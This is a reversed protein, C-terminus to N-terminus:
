FGQIARAARAQWTYAQVDLQAQRALRERRPADALLSQLADLWEPLNDPPCLVANNENLVEHLVPLDSSLIARGAAMYEFMKMPSCVDATNGGSSTAISREYPMLLVDAAAQYVPVEANHIFGTLTVNSVQAEILRDQWATVDAPRGGVWLFRVGPLARALGVLLDMGRGPYLHGTYIVTPTGPLGLELRAAATSPLNQYRELDVGMPAVVVEQEPLKLGFEDEIIHQLARTIPLFRKRGPGRVFSRFLLPGLRGTIRDHLELMVPLGQTQAFVAAQLMWTYVAEAGWRGAQRVAQLAFDYRRLSSLSPLWDIEFAETLGYHGSLEEWPTDNTGPLVLRVEHGLQSFAQCTKMVQISNASSSPVQSSAIFALKM